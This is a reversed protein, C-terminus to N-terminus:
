RSKLVFEIKYSVWVAVPQGNSIAPKWITKRAAEIAAEEFGANAGSPKVIIVDRVRGDKDVLSKVWVVGEVQAQRAMEPYVPTVQEIPSPAEEYAVFEDPKPLLEEMNEVNIEKNGIQELDVVPAPAAMQSLQDQTAITAEEPAQEDPVPTPVGVTPKVTQEINPNIPVDAQAVPPPAGLDQISKLTITGVAEPPKSSIKSILTVSGVSFLALASAILMGLTMNRRYARKLEFNGYGALISYSSM